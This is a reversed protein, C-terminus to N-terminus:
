VANRHVFGRTLTLLLVRLDLLLSWNEIYFLDYRLRESMSTQGRLGHVQAWGTMGAKVKHRLMYNPLSRRLEDIFVPREPRPGVLSMQGRIVNWLQPLEDLSTRRLWAGLRTRRSDDRTTMRPGTQDEAGATMTRLKLMEFTRGDLGAREQRYLASGPSTLRILLGLLLLLPSVVALLSTAVAVDFGRKLIRNWGYLPGERLSVMALGDFDSVNARLQMFGLVDPVYRVDVTTDGLQQMIDRLSASRESPLAVFVVDVPPDMDAVIRGVDAVGGLVRHSECGTKEADGELGEEGESILGLVEIGTWPHRDLRTLVESALVGTGVVIARRLNWGRQRMSRLVGRVVLRAAILGLPMLLAFILIVLRSYSWGRVLASLALLVVLTTTCAGVINGMEELLAGTRRPRYLGYGRFCALAVVMVVPLALLYDQLPPVGLPVDLLSFRLHYAAVFAGATLVVDLVAILTVFLQSYRRLM